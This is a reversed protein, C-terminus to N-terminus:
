RHLVGLDRGSEVPDGVGQLDLALASELDLGIALRGPDERVHGLVDGPTAASPLSSVTGPIPLRCRRSSRPIGRSRLAHGPEPLREGHDRGAQQLEELDGADSSLGDVEHVFLEPDLVEGLELPDIASPERAASRPM